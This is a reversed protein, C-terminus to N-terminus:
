VALSMLRYTLLAAAFTSANDNEDPALENVDLGIIERGKKINKLIAMAERWTLGNPVPTGTARIVSPDLGDVDFTIYIKKPFNEPLIDKNFDIGEEAIKLVDLSKLGKEVRLDAEEKSFARIGIGFVPVGLDLCRKMVSAHSYISGEYSDRLDAHADFQVIGFDKNKEYLAKIAGYTVTHEGGLVVPIANNDIAKKTAHYINEIVEEPKGSCDVENQTHIGLEHPNNNLWEDYIELQDSAKLIAKPGNVTGGGYSVSAEYPVPIVHFKAENENANEIESALFSQM